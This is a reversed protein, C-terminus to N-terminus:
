GRSPGIDEGRAIAQNEKREGAIQAAIYGVIGHVLIPFAVFFVGAIGLTAAWDEESWGLFEALIMGALKGPRPRPLKGTM